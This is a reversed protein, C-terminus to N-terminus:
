SLSCLNRFEYCLHNLLDSADGLPTNIIKKRWFDRNSRLWMLNDVQKLAMDIYDAESSACFEPMEAGNLVATSMRSVYSSGSKTIVPVGMWLAECTTTCGGNPFCDLGIDVESYQNLHDEHSAALPLWVVQETNLGQRLMRRRLLEQTGPDSSSNAKLVLRSDPCRRLIEGWLKLTQDSLKRNHNFSGFRVPGAPPGTVDLKGEAFHPSPDWAIFCRQLRLLKETHWEKHDSPFLSNDGIWYDICPNGTSAFYGLYNVQIPALRNAFGKQFEGGTWGALDIVVDFGSNRISRIRDEFSKLGLDLVSVSDLSSFLDFLETGNNRNDSVGVLSHSVNNASSAHRLFSYLFRSVPHPTIDPTIWGVRLNSCPNHVLQSEKIMHQNTQFFTSALDRSLSSEISSLHYIMNSLQGKSESILPHRYKQLLFPFWSVRGTAEYSTIQNSIHRTRSRLHLKGYSRLLLSARLAISPQRQLLKIQIIMPLVRPHDGLRNYAENLAKLTLSTSQADICTEAFHILLAPNTPLKQVLTHLLNLAGDFERKLMLYRAVQRRYEICDKLPFNDLFSKASDAGKTSFRFIIWAIQTFLSSSKENSLCEHIAAFQAKLDLGTQNISALCRLKIYAWPIDSCNKISPSLKEYIELVKDFNLLECHLYCLLWLGVKDSPNCTLFVLIHSEAQLYHEQRINIIAAELSASSVGSSQKCPFELLRQELVSFHIAMM